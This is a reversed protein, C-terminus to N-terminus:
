ESKREIRVSSIEFEGHCRRICDAIAIIGAAAASLAEVDIGVASRAEVTVACCVTEADIAFTVNVSDLVVPHCTPFTLPVLKAAQVASAEAIALVREKGGCERIAMDLDRQSSRLESVAAALRPTPPLHAVDRLLSM